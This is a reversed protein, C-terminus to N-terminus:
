HVTAGRFADFESALETLPKAESSVGSKVEITGIGTGVDFEGLAMDLLIFAAAKLAGEDATANIFVELGLKEKEPWSIYGVQELCLDMGGIGLRVSPDVRPRFATFKFGAVLPAAGVLASADPFASRIGDCSVIIEVLGDADVGLEHVLDPHVRRLREGLVRTILNSPESGKSLTRVDRDILARNKVIWAWFAERQDKKGPGLGFMM